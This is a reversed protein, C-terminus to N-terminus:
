LSSWSRVGSSEGCGWASGACLWGRGTAGPGLGIQLWLGGGWKGGSGARWCALLWVEVRGGVQGRPERSGPFSAGLPCVAAPPTEEVVWVGHSQIPGVEVQWCGCPGVM